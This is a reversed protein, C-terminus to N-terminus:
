GLSAQSIDSMLRRVADGERERCMGVSTDHKTNDQCWMQLMERMERRPPPPPSSRSINAARFASPDGSRMIRRWKLVACLNSEPNQHCHDEHMHEVELSLCMGTNVNTYDTCWMEHMERIESQDVKMGRTQSKAGKAKARYRLCVSGDPRVECWRENMAAIDDRIIHMAALLRGPRPQSEDHIMMLCVVALLVGGILLLRVVAAAPDM